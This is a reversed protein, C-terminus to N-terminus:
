NRTRAHEICTRVAPLAELRAEAIPKNCVECHGYTGSDLRVLAKQVEELDRRLTSVLVESGEREATVQSADAFNADYNLGTDHSNAFGLESLEAQLRQQEELLQKEFRVFSADTSM